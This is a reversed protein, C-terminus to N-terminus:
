RHYIRIQLANLAAAMEDSRIHSFDLKKPHVIFHILTKRCIELSIHQPYKHTHTHKMIEETQSKIALRQSRRHTKKKSSSALM